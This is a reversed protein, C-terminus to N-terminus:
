LKGVIGGLSVTGRKSIKNIILSTPFVMVTSRDTVVAILDSGKQTPLVDIKYTKASSRIKKVEVSYIRDGDAVMLDYGNAFGDKTKGYVKLGRSEFFEAVTQHTKNLAM